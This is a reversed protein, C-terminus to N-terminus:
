DTIISECFVYHIEQNNKISRCNYKKLDVYYSITEENIPKGEKKSYLIYTKNKSIIEKILNKTLNSQHITYESDDCLNIYRVNQNQYPAIISIPFGGALVIVSNDQFNLDEFEILKNSFKKRFEKNADPCKTTMLLLLLILISIVITLKTSKTLTKIHLLLIVIIIGSLAELPLAYRLVSFTKLWILYSVFVFLILFLMKNPELYKSIETNVTKSIKIPIFKFFLLILISVYMFCYRYDVFCFEFVTYNGSKPWYFPYFIWEITKEPFLRIDKYSEATILPSKFIDNFYPFFPNKFHEYILYMWYGDIIVFGIIQGILLLFISKLPSSIKKLFCCTVLFISLSFIAATLKLGTAIGLLIGASLILLTRKKSDQDFLFKLLIYLALLILTSIQIDNFTTGIELLVMCGTASILLSIIILIKKEVSKNIFILINLKYIIFLYLGYYQGQLFSVLKPYNNLYRSMFYYPFDIIPNFYSQIGCPTIDYGIRGNLFAHVNYIHYNALDWSRDQGLLVSVIGSLTLLGILITM